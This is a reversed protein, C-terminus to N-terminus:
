SGPGPGHGVPGNWGVDVGLADRGGGGNGDNENHFGFGGPDTGAGSALASWSDFASLNSSPTSPPDV